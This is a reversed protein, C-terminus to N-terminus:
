HFYKVFKATLYIPFILYCKKHVDAAVFCIIIIKSQRAKGQNHLSPTLSGSNDGSGSCPPHLCSCRFGSHGDQSCTEGGQCPSSLCPYSWVCGPRIDFTESVDPLGIVRGDLEIDQLCGQFASSAAVVGQRILCIEFIPDKLLTKFATSFYFNLM